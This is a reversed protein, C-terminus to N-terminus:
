GVGVTDGVSDGVDGEVEDCGGDSGGGSCCGSNSYGLGGHGRLHLSQLQDFETQGNM